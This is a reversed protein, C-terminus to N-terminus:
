PDRRTRGRPRVVLELDLYDLLKQWSPALQGRQGNLLNSLHTRSIGLERVLDAQKIRRRALEARLDARLEDTVNTM